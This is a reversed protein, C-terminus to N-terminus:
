DKISLKFETRRNKAKGEATKNDAVPNKSGFGVSSVRSAAIGKSVLYDACVKARDASLKDNIADTGSADTHGEVSVSYAPYENMIKVVEDLLAYSEKKLVSKGSEFKVSNAIQQLKVKVEEKVEPCGKNSAPGAVDPCRDDIDAVGDGDRDPCGNLAALGAVEPCRDKSDVVGDGDKDPEPCGKFQALGAVQPCEDKPDPIGDGDTDPCGNYQALGAVEPCEDDKDAVGDGDTDPCGKLEALGPVDPCADLEDIVGDGDTDAPLVVKPAEEVKEKTIRFTFGASWYVNDEFYDTLGFMYGGKTNLALGDSLKWNIGLGVPIGFGMKTEKSVPVKAVSGLANAFLYPSIPFKAPIMYSNSFNYTVGPGFMLLYKNAVPELKDNMINPSLINATIGFGSKFFNRSITVDPGIAMSKKFSSFENLKPTYFDLAAANFGLTWKEASLNKKEQAGANTALLLALIGGLLYKRKM